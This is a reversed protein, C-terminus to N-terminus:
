ARFVMAPDVRLAKRVSAVSAGMCMSVTLVLLGMAMGPTTVMKLGLGEYAPRAGMGIAIGILYGIFAYVLAQCAILSVIERGTAGIAKLTGYEKLHELTSSYITQGVIVMGVIFGLLATLGFGVGMGTQVIWYRQTKRSFEDRAYVDVGGITRLREIVEDMSHGPAVNVLIFTTQDSGTMRYVGALRKATEYNAFITPYTTFSKVDQSIGVVKVATEAIEVTDDMGLGELRRVASEDIIITKDVKLNRVSGELLKWPLGLGADPDFGVVMVTETSGSRLKMQGWGKAMPEASAVGRLQRVKWLKREPFPRSSDFNQNNELTIWVDAKANDILVSAASVFGLYAGVDFFMLVVAFTVGVLTLGVRTREKLLNRWAIFFM